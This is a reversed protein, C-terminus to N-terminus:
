MDLPRGNAGCFRFATGPVEYMGRFTDIVTQPDPAPSVEYTHVGDDNTIVVRTESIEVQVKPTVTTSAM